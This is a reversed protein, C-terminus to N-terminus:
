KRAGEVWKLTNWEIARFCKNRSDIERRKTKSRRNGNNHEKIVM